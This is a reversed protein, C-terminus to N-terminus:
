YTKLLENTPTSEFFDIVYKKLNILEKSPEAKLPTCYYLFSREPTLVRRLVIDPNTIRSAMTQTLPAIGINDQMSNVFNLNNSSSVITKLKVNTLVCFYDMLNKIANEPVGTIINQGDISQFELPEDGVALPHTKHMAVYMDGEKIPTCNIVRQDLPSVLFAVDLENQILKKICTAQSWEEIELHINPNQKQYDFIFDSSVSNTVGYAFAVSYIRYTKNKNYDNLVNLSMCYEDYLRKINPYLLKCIETPEVGTQLREFLVVNLENELSKIRRSLGQQSIFLKASARLINREQYLCLFSELANIQM